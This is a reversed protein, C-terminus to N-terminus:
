SYSKTILGGELGKPARGQFAGAAGSPRPLGDSGGSSGDAGSGGVRGFARGLVAVQPTLRNLQHLQSILM